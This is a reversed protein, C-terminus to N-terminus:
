HGGFGGGPGGGADPANALYLHTVGTGTDFTELSSSLSCPVGSSSTETLTVVGRVETRVGTAGVKTFPLSVSTTQGSTVTFPTATGIAAGASNVFGITGTCSAATGSSSATALNTVNVQATESSGLGVPPSSSSRSVTTGTTSTQAVALGGTLISLGIVMRAFRQFPMTYGSM